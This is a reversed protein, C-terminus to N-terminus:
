VTGINFFVTIKYNNFFIIIKSVMMKELKNTKTIYVIHANCMSFKKKLIM